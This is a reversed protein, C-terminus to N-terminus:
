GGRRRLRRRREEEGEEKEEEEEEEEEEQKQKLMCMNGMMAQTFISNLYLTFLFRALRGPARAKNIIYNVKTGSPGPPVGQPTGTAM